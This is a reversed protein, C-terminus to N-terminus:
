YDTAKVVKLDNDFFVAKGDVYSIAVGNGFPQCGNDHPDDSIRARGDAALYGYDVTGGSFRLPFCRLGKPERSGFEYNFDDPKFLKMTEPSIQLLGDRDQCGCDQHNFFAVIETTFAFGSCDVSVRKDLKSGCSALIFATSGILATLTMRRLLKM